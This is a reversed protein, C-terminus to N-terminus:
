AAGIEKAEPLELMEKHVPKELTEKFVSLVKLAQYDSKSPLLKRTKISYYAWVTALSM